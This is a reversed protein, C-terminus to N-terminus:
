KKNTTSDVTDEIKKFEETEVKPTTPTNPQNPTTPEVKPTATYDNHLLHINEYSTVISIAPKGATYNVKITNDENTTTFKAATSNTIEGYSLDISFSPNVNPPYSLKIQSYSNDIKLQESINIFDIDLDGHSLQVDVKKATIATLDIDNYNNQIVLEDATFQKVRIRCHKAQINTNGTINDLYVSNDSNNIKISNTITKLKLKTHHGDFNLGNANECTVESYSGNEMLIQQEVNTLFAQAHTCDLKVSTVDSITIRSFSSDVDLTGQINRLILKGYAHEISLEANCHKVGVDGYKNDITINKGTDNIIVDGYRNWLNLSLSAPISVKFYVRVRSYNFDETPAVDIILRAPNEKSRNSSITIMKAIDTAKGRNRHYVRVEPQVQIDGTPSAVVEISGAVNNIEIETIDSGVYRIEPRTFTNLNKSDVLSFRDNSCGDVFHIEGSEIFNYIVGFALVVLM